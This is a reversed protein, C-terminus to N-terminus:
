ATTREVKIVEGLEDIAQLVDAVQAFCRKSIRLYIYKGERHDIVVVGAAKLPVLLHSVADQALGTHKVIQTVSQAGYQMFCRLIQLRRPTTIKVLRKYDFNAMTMM